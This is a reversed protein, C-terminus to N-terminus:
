RTAPTAAPKYEGLYARIVEANNRIYEPTGEAIPEGHDLVLIHTSIKMVVQMHHEILLVALGYDRIRSILSVMELTEQPNMGAAPEDLLLLRPKTALARAIELRRQSGYPLNRAWTHAENELGVFRLLELAEAQGADEERTYFPLRLVLSFPMFHRHQFQAVLVNELATMEGFLRINQFTRALGLRCIRHPPKGLIDQGDLTISGTEARYIGSLCNFLTTKGAGNPGIVSVICRPQVTLNVESLASLGGFTKGLDRVELLPASSM